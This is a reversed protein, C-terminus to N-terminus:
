EVRKGKPVCPCARPQPLPAVTYVPGKRTLEGPVVVGLGEEEDVPM